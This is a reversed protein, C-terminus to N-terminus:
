ILPNYPVSNSYHEDFLTSYYSYHEPTTFIVGAELRPNPTLNHSTIICVNREGEILVIKSHNPTLRIEDFVHAAFLMNDLKRYPATVDFLLSASKVLGQEKLNIFFRIAAEGISFTSIRLHAAGSYELAHALLDHLSWSGASFFPIIKNDEIKIRPKEM